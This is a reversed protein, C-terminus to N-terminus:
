NLIFPTGGYEWKKDIDRKLYKIYCENRYLDSKEQNKKMFEYDPMAKSKQNSKLIPPTSRYEDSSNFIYQQPLDLCELLRNFYPQHYFVYYLSPIFLIIVILM